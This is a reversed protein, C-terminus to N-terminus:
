VQIYGVNDVALLRIPSYSASIVLTTGGNITDTGSRSLTINGAGATRVFTIVRSGRAKPLQIALPGSTSDLLHFDTELNATYGSSKSLVKATSQLGMMLDHTASRDSQHFHLQCDGGGTLELEQDPTM